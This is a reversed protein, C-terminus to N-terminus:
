MSYNIPLRKQTSCRKLAANSAGKLAPKLRQPAPWTEGSGEAELDLWCGDDMIAEKVGDPDTLGEAFM